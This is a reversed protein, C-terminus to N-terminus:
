RNRRPIRAGDRQSCAANLLSQNTRTRYSHRPRASISLGAASEEPSTHAFQHLQGLLFQLQAKGGNREWDFYHAMVNDFPTPNAASNSERSFRPCPRGGSRECGHQSAYPVEGGCFRGSPGGGNPSRASVEFARAGIAQVADEIDLTKRPAGRRNKPVPCYHWTLPLQGFLIGPLRIIRRGQM